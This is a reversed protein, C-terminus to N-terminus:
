VMKLVRRRSMFMGALGAGFLYLISPEPIPAITLSSSLYINENSDPDSHTLYFGGSPMLETLSLSITAIEDLALTFDWGMAMSVDDESGSPVNNSNDLESFWFNDFIDGFVYGPEDIEWSQGAAVVGATAGFQNFFTNIAEDIEHDFFADFSHVGAGNISIFISGLGTWDDFGSLDMRSDTDGDLPFIYDTNDINFGYDYLFPAAQVAFSSVGLLAAGALISLRGTNM